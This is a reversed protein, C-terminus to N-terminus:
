FQQDLLAVIRDITPLIKEISEETSFPHHFIHISFLINRKEERVIKGSLSSSFEHTGTKAIVPNKLGARSFRYKLTGDVQSEPLANWFDKKWPQGEIWDFLTLIASASVRTMPSLGSGDFAIFEEPPIGIDETFERLVKVGQEQSGKDDQVRGLTRVLAEAYHNRSFTLMDVIIDSLPQSLHESILTGRRARRFSVVHAEKAILGVTNLEQKLVLAAMHSPDPVVASTRFPLGEMTDGQLVVTGDREMVATVEEELEEGREKFTREDRISEYGELPFTTQEFEEEENWGGRISLLNDELFLGTIPVSFYQDRLAIDWGPGFREGEFIRDSYFLDGEVWGEKQVARVLETFDGKRLTPDGGGELLLHVKGERDSFKWLRTAFRWERGLLAMSTATTFLKFNSGPHILKHINFAVLDNKTGEYQAGVVITAGRLAESRQLHHLYGLFNWYKIFPIVVVIGLLIMGFFLALSFLVSGICSFRKSAVM